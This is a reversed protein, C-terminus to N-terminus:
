KVEESSQAVLAAAGPGEGMYLRGYGERVVEVIEELRRTIHARLVSGATAKDKARIAAVLARHERQTKDRRGHMDVWRFFHIRANVNRLLRKLLNRRTGGIASEAPGQLATPASM